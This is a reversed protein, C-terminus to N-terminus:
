DLDKYNAFYTRAAKVVKPALLISSLMTPIAMMAFASDLLNIVADISAIAGFVISSIYFYNYYHQREAGILFGLCKTGYYSYTFMTTLAFITVCIILLGIGVYSMESAFARATLTVGDADTSTWVGTMLIALATMTCVLLTDIAPELMAVLGERVPENTKAAGHAMSETGIGAENSFAARRVGMIIVAGVAGGFVASDNVYEGKFADTVILHLYSPVDGLNMFIIYLVSMVYIVVMAPVLAAAVTGIRKIGGFIVLSVIMALVIGVILDATLQSEGMLGMPIILETRLIQTLQNAQFMPTCGLLGCVSFFVALPKWNKGLGEMIVYMPGGQLKGSSDKGRYMISLTCTFFKTAMGVMASVWMWFLAGPGGMTIAVAVGGINGMGVTAALAASLAQFHNIDGEAEPDDYKGTLIKLSHSLYFYPQFRSIIVFFLGGGILLILLPFGWALNAFKESLSELTELM